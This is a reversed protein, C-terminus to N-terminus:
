IVTKHAIADIQSPAILSLARGEIDCDDYTRSSHDFSATLTRQQGLASAGTPSLRPWSERTFRVGCPTTATDSCTRLHGERVTVVVV